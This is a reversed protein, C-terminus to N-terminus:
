LCPVAHGGESTPLFNVLKRASFPTIMTEQTHCAPPTALREAEITLGSSALPRFIRPPLRSISITSCAAPAEVSDIGPLSTEAAMCGPAQSRAMVDDVLRM